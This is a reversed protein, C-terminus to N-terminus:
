PRPRPGLLQAAQDVDRRQPDPQVRQRAVGVEPKRDVHRGAGDAIRAPHLRESAAQGTVPGDRFAQDQLDGLGARHGHGLEDAREHGVQLATADGERQVVEARPLGGELMQALHEEIDDLDVAVEYAAAVAVGVCWHM